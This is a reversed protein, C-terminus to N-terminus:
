RGAPLARGGAARGAGGGGETVAWEASWGGGRVTRTLLCLHRGRGFDEGNAAQALGKGADPGQVVHVEGQAGTLDM